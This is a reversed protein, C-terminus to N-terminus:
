INKHPAPNRILPGTPDSKLSEYIGVSVDYFYLQNQPSILLPLIKSILHDM